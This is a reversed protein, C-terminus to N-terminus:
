NDITLGHHSACSRRHIMCLPHMWRLGSLTPGYAQLDLLCTDLYGLSRSSTRVWASLHNLRGSAPHINIVGDCQRLKWDISSKGRQPPHLIVINCAFAFAGSAHLICYHSQTSSPISFVCNTLVPFLRSSSAFQQDLVAKLTLSTISQSSINRSRLHSVGARGKRTSRKELTATTHERPM